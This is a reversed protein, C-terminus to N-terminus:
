IMSQLEQEKALITKEYVKIKNNLKDLVKQKAEIEIALVDRQQELLAKRENITSDGQQFLAVYRTLVEISLGAGRMCKIFDIWKCSTEDYDRIGSLTRPVPPILGIKEYYRLTDKPMKFLESAKLINM